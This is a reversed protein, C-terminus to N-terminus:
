KGDMWGNVKSRKAAVNQFVFLCVFWLLLLQISVICYQLRRGEKWAGSKSGRREECGLGDSPGVCGYAVECRVHHLFMVVMVLVIALLLLFRGPRFLGLWLMEHALEM